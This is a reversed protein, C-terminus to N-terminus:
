ETRTVGDGQTALQSLNSEVLNDDQRDRLSVWMRMGASKDAAAPALLIAM